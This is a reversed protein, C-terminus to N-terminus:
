TNQGTRICEAGKCQVLAKLRRRFHNRRGRKMSYGINNLQYHDEYFDYAEVFKEDDEFVCFINNFKDSVRRACAFTNNRSDECKCAMDKSCHSLNIDNDSPCGTSAPVESKEGRYEVLVTRDEALYPSLITTGDSPHEVGAIELITAFLDVSSVPASVNSPSIGPGRILLPVKIDTEYPQRKDIPMSFQGIHYGNDSTFIIYTTDLFNNDKLAQYVKTVMEDVAALTEWRRRYTEDLLPLTNKPLPSPGMRVLWHKNQHGAINFSPTKKATTGKYKGNHRSAPTFPAHPAPTSLVM